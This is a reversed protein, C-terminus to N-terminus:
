VHGHPGGEPPSDSGPFMKDVMRGLVGATHGETLHTYKATMAPSAHGLVEQIDRLSAGNMALYSACTHRLDHFVFGTIKARKLATRFAGDVSIPKRGDHRAFVWADPLQRASRHQLLALAPGSLPINRRPAKKSVGVRIVAQVFDLDRWRLQMLQNKRAGTSLALLVLAHLHPNRSVQCAQLLATREEDSLFRVRGPTEPQKRVKRFPNSPIWELDQMAVTFPAALTSWYRQSLEDRWQRLFAPTFDRLPKWGLETRLWVYLRRLQYQTVLAKTPFYEREYYRLLDHLTHTDGPTPIGEQPL